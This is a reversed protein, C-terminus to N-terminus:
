ITDHHIPSKLLFYGPLHPWQVKSDVIGYEIPIRPIGIYDFACNLMVKSNGLGEIQDHAFLIFKFWRFPREKEGGICIRFGGM